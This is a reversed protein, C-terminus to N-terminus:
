NLLQDFNVQFYYVGGVRPGGSIEIHYHNLINTGGISFITKWPRYAYSLNLDVLSYAPLEVLNFIFADNWRYNAVFGFHKWLNNGQLGVAARHKPANFTNVAFENLSHAELFSYNALLRYKSNLALTTSINSGWMYIDERINGPVAYASFNNLSLDRETLIAGSPILDQRAPGAYIEYNIFGKFVSYFGTVDISLREFWTGRYGLEYTHLREAEVPKPNVPTGLAQRAALTDGGRFLAGYAIANAFPYLNNNGIGNREIIRDLGGITIRGYGDFLNLYSEIMSPFRFATQFSGRLFHQEQNDLSLIAAIRPSFQPKFETHADMRVSGVTKLRNNLWKRQLQVFAGSEWIRVREIDDQYMTNNTMAESYRLNFGLLVDVWKGTYTSLDYQGELNYLSSSPYIRAGGKGIDTRIVRDYISQFQPTGPNYRQGGVAFAEVLSDPQGNQRLIEAIYRNDSDAFIRAAIPDGSPITDMGLPKFLSNINGFYAGLFQGFWTRHPKMANNIEQGAIAMDYGTGVNKWQNNVYLRLMLEPTRWEVKHQSFLGDEIRYRNENGAQFIGNLMNYRGAIILEQKPSPRYHLGWSGNIIRSQYDTLDKERFGTRAISVSPVFGFPTQGYVLASVEDGYTNFGDFGLTALGPENSGGISTTYFVRDRYDNAVWDKTNLVGLNIKYAWKEKFVKAFRIEGQFLPVAEQVASSFQYSPGFVAAPNENLNPSFVRSVGTRFNASLGQYDFPSKTTMNMTGNISNAGYLASTPGSIIEINDIDLTSWTQISGMYFGFAPSLMEMGDIRHPFRMNNPTNFGRSNINKVGFSSTTVELQNVFALADVANLAPTTRLQGVDMKYIAAPAQTLKESVRSASVVVVDTMFEDSKMEIKGMRGLVETNLISITATAYGIASIELTAPLSAKLSFRGENDTIAGTLTGMVKVYAGGIPENTGSELVFSQITQPETIANAQPNSPNTPRTPSNTPNSPRVVTDPRRRTKERYEQSYGQYAICLLGCSLWFLKFFTDSIYFM